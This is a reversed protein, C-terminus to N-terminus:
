TRNRFARAVLAAMWTRPLLRPLFILFRNLTGTVVVPRGKQWASFGLRAVQEAPMQNSQRIGTRQAFESETSGPCLTTLTVGSGRLEAALAEGYHLLFAKAAGYATMYPTPLFSSTSGVQIMGGSGRNKMQPLVARLLTVPVEVHLRIMERERTEDTEAVPGYLGIGANNVLLDVRDRRIRTCVRDLGERTLLDAVLVEASGGGATLETALERLRQERRAVLVVHYGKQTLLRAFAEGIGSSAGTVLAVDM